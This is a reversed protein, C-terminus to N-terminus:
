DGFGVGKFTRLLLWTLCLAMGIAIVVHVNWWLFFLGVMSPVILNTVLFRWRGNPEFLALWPGVHGLLTSEVGRLFRVRAPLYEDMNFM